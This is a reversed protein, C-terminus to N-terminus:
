GNDLARTVFHAKIQIGNICICWVHVHACTLWIITHAVGKKRLGTVNSIENLFVLEAFGTARCIGFQM